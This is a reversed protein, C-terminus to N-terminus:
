VFMQQLLGRKFTQTETIQTTVSEIKRDIASLFEAIKTQEALCPFGIQFERIQKASIHPIGSSTKVRDVYRHFVFSNVHHYIYQLSSGVVPRIRAVRQVLLSGSEAEGVIASNRGVKSGDMGIVMDGVELQYKQLKTVDGCYFRDHDSSHRISGETINVGRMLLVNPRGNVSEGDLIEESAFPFGSLMEISDGIGKEEWDPFDNGHDDKFRIAQTFLQQMVGKKYDELLAKKQILQGIRGDVATLFDAIKRQEPLSPVILRVGLLDKQSINTQSKALGSKRGLLHSQAKTTGLCRAIFNRDSQENSRLRIIKDSLMLKPRTSNVHVVVGVRESPGARTVLIDGVQVEITPRPLLDAPLRKNALDDYGEWTVSTTKLIAWEDDRAPEDSCQPSWGSDISEIADGVLINNWEEAFTRFRLLPEIHTKLNGRNM